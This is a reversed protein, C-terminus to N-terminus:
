WERDWWCDAGECGLGLGPSGVEILFLWRWGSYGGVGRLHLLGFASFAAAIDAVVMAAWFFGMRVGLERATYFYSLYLVVTPIFGGQLLGLLARSALYGTRGGLLFQSAAVVSWLVMQTPIWRDPGLHKSILQSPVEALLFALAFLSNGTNYDPPPNTKTHPVHLIPPFPPPTGNTGLGLEPLLDDTVAQRINARDMELACFMLCTWLMIRLDIKRVLSREERWTWRASPDFRHYNERPTNTLHM